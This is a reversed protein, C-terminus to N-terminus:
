VALRVGDGPVANVAAPEAPSAPATPKPKEETKSNTRAALEAKVLMVTAVAVPIVVAAFALEETYGGTPIKWGHKRMLPGATQAIAGRVEETYLRELSPVVPSVIKVVATIIGYVEQEETQVVPASAGAGSATDPSAAPAAAITPVPSVATRAKQDVEAAAAKILPDM